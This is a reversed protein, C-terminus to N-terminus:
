QSRSSSLSENQIMSQGSIFISSHNISNLECSLYIIKSNWNNSLNDWHILKTIGRGLKVRINGFRKM